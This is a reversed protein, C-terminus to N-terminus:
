LGQHILEEGIQRQDALVADLDKYESIPNLLVARLLTASKGKKGLPRETRSVFTKGREKQKEQLATNLRNLYPLNLDKKGLFSPVYRYLVMNLRPWTILEFDTSNKIQHAFYEAKKVSAELYASLGKQGMLMLAAELYLGNAPRSGELTFRGLDQSEERVAYPAFHAISQVLTPNKFFLMGSGMPLLLQKHGDMTITDANEIGKLRGRYRESLIFAGGWAGDVHFHINKERAIKSLAFLDDVAGCDTSGATGVLAIVKYSKKEAEAFISGLARLDMSFDKGVPCKLLKLGLVDCAKDFSYHAYESAIVAVEEMGQRYWYKVRNGETFASKNLSIYLATLNSLTGGSTFFGLSSATDQTYRHYFSDNLGYLQRHIKAIVEKEQLTLLASTETKLVNQNLATVLRAVKPMFGPLRATMHGIFCPSSIQTIGTLLKGLRAIYREEDGEQPLNTEKFQEQQKLVGDGNIIYPPNYFSQEADKLAQTLARSTHDWFAKM